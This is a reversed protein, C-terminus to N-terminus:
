GKQRMANEAITKFDIKLRNRESQIDDNIDKPLPEDSTLEVTNDATEINFKGENQRAIYNLGNQQTIDFEEGIIQNALQATQKRVSSKMRGIEALVESEEGVYNTYMWDASKWTYLYRDEHDYLRVTSLNNTDYRVYVEDGIHQWTINEDYFWIKEGHYNVFVGNKKIKQYGDTRMLLLDLIGESATVQTTEKISM